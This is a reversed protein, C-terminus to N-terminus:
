LVDSFAPALDLIAGRGLGLIIFQSKVDLLRMTQM